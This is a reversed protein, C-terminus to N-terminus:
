YFLVMPQRRLIKEVAVVLIKHRLEPDVVAGEDM